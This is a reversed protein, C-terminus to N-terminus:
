TEGRSTGIIRAADALANRLHSLRQERVHLTGIFAQRATHYTPIVTLAPDPTYRNSYRRWVSKAEGGHLLVVKLRPLLKLLRRLPEVGADLEAASPKRNVYWPYANWTITRAPDIAAEDLLQALREAAPDDNELCLFGSGGDSDNTMPGPDRFVHLMEAEIGGYIPAVYPMWGGGGARLEDVLANVPAIHPLRVGALQTALFAPDRM